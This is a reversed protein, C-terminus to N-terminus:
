ESDDIKSIEDDEFTARKKPIAAPSEESIAEDPNIVFQKNGSTITRSLKKAIPERLQKLEVSDAGSMSNHRRNYCRAREADGPNSVTNQNNYLQNPDFPPRKSASVPCTLYNDAETPIAYIFHRSYRTQNRSVPTRRGTSKQRDDGDDLSSFDVFPAFPAVTPRSISPIQTHSVEGHRTLDTHSREGIRLATSVAKPLGLNRFTEDTPLYTNESALWRKIYKDNFNTFWTLVEPDKQKIGDDGPIKLCKMVFKITCGQLISTIFIMALTTTVFYPKAPIIREDIIQVLGFCVAGRIGAHTVVLQDAFPIRDEKSAFLNYFASLACTVIFRYLTCCLVTIAIFYYDFEHNYSVLSVGLYFFICSESLSSGTKSFTFAAFEMEVCMNAAMYYSMIGACLISALIGSYHGTEALLYALYPCFLQFIPQSMQHGVMNKMIFVGLFGVIAGCLLGAGCVIIFQVLCSGAVSAITFMEDTADSTKIVNISTRYLVITVADNCLSEGFILIFLSKKVDLEAFTSLVSVPDVASILVSFVFLHLFGPKFDFLFEIAYMTSALLLAHIVTGFVAFLLIKPLAITFEKKQMSLGADNVIAPLLIMFFMFTDLQGPDIKLGAKVGTAMLVGYMMLVVSEPLMRLGPWHLTPKALTVLIILFVFALPKTTHQFDMHVPDLLHKAEEIEEPNANQVWEGEAEM